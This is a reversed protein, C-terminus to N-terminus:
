IKESIVVLVLTQNHLRCDNSTGTKAFEGYSYFGLHKTDAGFVSKMENYEECAMENLIIRRGVCSVSLVFSDKESETKLSRSLDQISDLLQMTGTKMLRVVEGEPMDGGFIISKREHNVSIPTRIVDGDCEKGVLLFPYYINEHTFDSDVHEGMFEYMTDYANRENIDILEPGNSATITFELGLSSWGWDHGSQFSIKDGYFGVAVVNGQSPSANLGVYTNTYRFGDGAMGGFVQTEDSKFNNVGELLRNNDILTGDGILLVGKADTGIEKMLYKGMEFADQHEANSTICAKISSSEFDFTTVLAEEDHVKDVHFQGGTSFIVLAANPYKEKLKLHVESPLEVSNYTFLVLDTSHNVEREKLDNYNFCDNKM